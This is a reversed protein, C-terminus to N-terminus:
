DRREAMAQLYALLAELEDDPLVEASFGPMKMGNWRRVQAPDRILQKLYPLAFYETPSRPQNLDPGIHGDGGGNLTHCALCHTKFLAFGQWAPHHRPLSLDPLLQPYRAEPPVTQEIVGIQFPWHEPPVPAAGTNGPAPLWVLYFPGASSGDPSLAPWPQAPDEVALWAQVANDAMIRTAEIPAAFGDLALFNLTGQASFGHEQLLARLPLARFTMARKYAIDDPVTIHTLDQRQLLTAADLRTSKGDHKLVLTADALAPPTLWFLLLLALVYLPPHAPKM